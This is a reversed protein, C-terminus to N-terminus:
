NPGKVNKYFFALIEGRKRRREVSLRNKINIALWFM